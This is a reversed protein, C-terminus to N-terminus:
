NIGRDGPDSASLKAAARDNANKMWTSVPFFWKGGKPPNYAYYADARELEAELDISSFREKWEAWHKPKLRIVRGAFVYSVVPEGTGRDGEGEGEREGELSRKQTAVQEAPMLVRKRRNCSRCLVQLNEETGDGGKSIPVIHDIELNEIDGCQVCIHGDREMVAARVTKPVHRSKWEALIPGCSQHPVLWGADMLAELDVPDNANIQRGVWNPDNPIKNDLRSALLWISVLHAKQADPLSSFEYDNLIEGYLKIWKPARDKYHQFRDFNKVSIHSQAVVM